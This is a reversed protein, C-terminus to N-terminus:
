PLVEYWVEVEYGDLDNFFVYPSGPVFEGIDTIKGGAKKIKEVIEDIGKPDRLRFGFHAIGGTKGINETNREEFVLIDNCGPTTMQVFGDDHYMTIMDFVQQYFNMTNEINNVAIAIHTLGYTITNAMKKIKTLNEEKIFARFCADKSIYIYNM